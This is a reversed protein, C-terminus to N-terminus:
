NISNEFSNILRHKHLYERRKDNLFISNLKQSKFVDKWEDPVGNGILVKGDNSFSIKGSDFYYDANEGLLLGNNPDYESEEDCKDYAWIHSAIIKARSMPLGSLMCKCRSNNEALGLVKNSEIILMDRYIQQETQSRPPKNKSKSIIQIEDNDDRFFLVSDVFVIYQDLCKLISRFHSVQNYKRGLAGISKIFDKREKLQEETLFDNYEDPNTFMVALLDEKNLKGNNELTRLLFKVRNRKYGDRNTVSANLQNNELFIRAKYTNREFESNSNLFLKTLPHYTQLQPNIFGNKIWTNIEKRANIHGNKKDWSNLRTIKEQLRQYSTPIKSDDPLYADKSDIADIIIELSKLFLPNTFDTKAATYKWYDEYKQNKRNKYNM